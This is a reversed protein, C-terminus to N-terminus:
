IFASDCRIIDGDNICDQFPKVICTIRDYYLWEDPTRIINAAHTGGDKLMITNMFSIGVKIIGFAFGVGPPLDGNAAAEQADGRAKIAADECDGSGPVYVWPRKVHFGRFLSVWDISPLFYSDDGAEVAKFGRATLETRIQQATLIM